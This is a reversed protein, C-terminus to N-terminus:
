LKQRAVTLVSQTLAHLQDAVLRNIQWFLKREFVRGPVLEVLNGCELHPKALQVPNLAWGM